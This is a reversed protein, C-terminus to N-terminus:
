HGISYSAPERETIGLVQRHLPHAVEILGFTSTEVPHLYLENRSADRGHILTKVSRVRM